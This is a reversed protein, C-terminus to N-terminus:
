QIESFFHDGDHVFCSRDREPGPEPLFAGAEEVRNGVGAFLRVQHQKGEVHDDEEPELDGKDAIERFVYVFKM